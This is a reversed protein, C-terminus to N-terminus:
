RMCEEDLYGDRFAAQVIVVVKLWNTADLTDDRTTSTLRQRLHELRIGSPGGSRNRSIRRVAWAIDEEKQISGDAPFLQVGM